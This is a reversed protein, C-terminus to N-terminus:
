HRMNKMIVKVIQQPTVGVGSLTTQSKPKGVTVVNSTGSSSGTVLRVYQVQFCLVIIFIFFLYIVTACMYFLFGNVQRGPM